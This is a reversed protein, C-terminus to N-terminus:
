AYEIGTEALGVLDIVGLDDTLEAAAAALIGKSYEGNNLADIFPQAVDATPAEGYLNTYLLNVVAANTTAGVATLALECVTDLSQGADFLQLGIGVYEKNSLGEEGIVAALTKATQGASGELDIALNTNTFRLREVDILIDAFRSVDNSAVKYNSLNKLVEVQELSLGYNISDLGLGGDFIQNSFSGQLSDNGDGLRIVAPAFDNLVAYVDAQARQPDNQIVILDDYGDSNVDGIGTADSWGFIASDSETHGSGYPVNFYDVFVGSGDNLLVKSVAGGAYAGAGGGSIQFDTHGDQNFDTTRIFKWWPSPEGATQSPFREATEDRFRGEGENILFQLYGTTYYEDLDPGNNTSAIVLDNLTDGNLDVEEIFQILDSQVPMTPLSLEASDAFSGDFSAIFVKSDGSFGGGFVLDANNDGSLEALAAWTYTPPEIGMDSRYERPLLNQTDTLVGAGDNVLLRNVGYGVGPSGLTTVVVDLDGDGDIDGSAVGHARDSETSVQSVTFGGNGNSLWVQDNGGAGIALHNGYEAVYIDPTADGNFDGVAVRPAFFVRPPVEDFIEATKDVWTGDVQGMMFHILSPNEAEGEGTLTNVILDIRGDNNFDGSEIQQPEVKRRGDEFGVDINISGLYIKNAFM